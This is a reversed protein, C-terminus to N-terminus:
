LQSRVTSSRHCRPQVSAGRNWRLDHAQHTTLLVTLTGRIRWRELSVNTPDPNTRGPLSGGGTARSADTTGKWANTQLISARLDVREGLDPGTCIKVFHGFGHCKFCRPPSPDSLQVRCLFFGIKIKKLSSFVGRPATAIAKAYGSTTQWLGPVSIMDKLNRPAVSRLADLIEDKGISPDTDLILLKDLRGLTTVNKVVEPGM